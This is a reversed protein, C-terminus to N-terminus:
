EVFTANVTIIKQSEGRWRFQLGKRQKKTWQRLHKICTKCVIHPAWSKDQDGLKVQFLSFLSTECFRHNTKPQAGIHIRWM